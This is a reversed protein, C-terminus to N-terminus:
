YRTLSANASSQGRTAATPQYDCISFQECLMDRMENVERVQNNVIGECYEILQHHETDSKVRCDLSPGMAAYHHNGSVQLFTQEFQAGPAAQELLQIQQQGDQRVTPTHTAFLPRPEATVSVMPTALANPGLPVKIAPAAPNM